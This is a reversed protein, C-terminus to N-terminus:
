ASQATRGPVRHPSTAPEAARLCSPVLALFHELGPVPAGPRKAAEAPALAAGQLAHEPQSLAGGYRMAGKEEFLLRLEASAEILNSMM